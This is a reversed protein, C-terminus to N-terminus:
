LVSSDTLIIHMCVCTGTHTLAWADDLKVSHGNGEVKQFPSPLVPWTAFRGPRSGQHCNVAGVLCKSALYLLCLKAWAKSYKGSHTLTGRHNWVCSTDWVLGRERIRCGAVIDVMDLVFSFVIYRRFPLTRTSSWFSLCYVHPDEPSCLMLTWPIHSSWREWPLFSAYFHVATELIAFGCITLIHM